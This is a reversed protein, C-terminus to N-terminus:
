GVPQLVGPLAARGCLDLALSVLLDWPDRRGLGKAVADLQALAHLLRDVQDPAARRAARELAAQRKGWVRANRVATPLSQGQTMADRVSALAHLDEGLQWIALTIAEGEGQLADIIRLARGADGQLWAESLEQIDYRAVDAVAREVDDHALQGKPLLLALKDVEQRAALLNGECREALWALTDRTVRQENRGLREALWAPLAAREVPAVAIMVAAADLACFWASAQTARDIRPLTILTVGDPDLSRAHRELAAAGDIGPKGSPIRLDILKRSGFLGLNANAALFADWRFHQDVIFLERDDCGARRAAARVADGAEIAALPEDGHIVYLPQLKRALHAALDAPRLQM